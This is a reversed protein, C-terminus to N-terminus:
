IARARRSLRLIDELSMGTAEAVDEPAMGMSILKGAVEENQLRRGEAMGELRGKKEYAMCNMRLNEEEDFLQEYVGLVEYRRSWVFEGIAGCGRCAEFAKLVRDRDRDASGALMGDIIRCVDIYDRLLGDGDLSVETSPSDDFIGEMIGGMRMVRSGGRGAYVAYAEWRPFDGSRVDYLTMGNESLYSQFTAALYFLTRLRIPEMSYSQAEALCILRNGVSFGLDNAYGKAIVRRLTRIRVDGESSETDEPHLEQYLRFRQLPGRLIERVGFGERQAKRREM